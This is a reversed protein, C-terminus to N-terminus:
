EFNVIKPVSKCIKRLNIGVLTTVYLTSWHSPFSFIM